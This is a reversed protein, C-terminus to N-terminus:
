QIHDMKHIAAISNLRNGYVLPFQEGFRLMKGDVEFVHPSLLSGLAGKFHGTGATVVNEHNTWGSGALRHKGLADRRYERRESKFFCELRGFNMADGSHKIGSRAQYAQSREARWVVCDRVGSQNAAANHRPWAFNREGM